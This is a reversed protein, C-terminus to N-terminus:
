ISSNTLDLRTLNAMFHGHSNVSLIVQLDTKIFKFRGTILVLYTLGGWSTSTRTRPRGLVSDLTEAIELTMKELTM